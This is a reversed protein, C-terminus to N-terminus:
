FGFRELSSGENLGYDLTVRIKCQVSEQCVCGCFVNHIENVVADQLSEVIWSPTYGDDSSRAVTILMPCEKLNLEKKLWCEQRLCAGFLQIKEQLYQPFAASDSRIDEVSNPLLINQVAKSMALIIPQVSTPNNRCFEDLSDIINM